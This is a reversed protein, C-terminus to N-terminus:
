NFYCYYLDYIRGDFIQGNVSMDDLTIWFRNICVYM